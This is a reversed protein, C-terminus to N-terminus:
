IEEPRYDFALFRKLMPNEHNAPAPVQGNFWNYLDPDSERLLWEFQDLEADSFDALHREAFQGMLLDMEKTGRKGSRYRLQRRRIERAAETDTTSDAEDSVPM